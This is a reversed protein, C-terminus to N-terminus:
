SDLASMFRQMVLNAASTQSGMDGFLWERVTVGAAAAECEIANKIKRLARKEIHHIM